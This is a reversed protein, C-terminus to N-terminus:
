VEKYPYKSEAEKIFGIVIEMNEIGFWELRYQIPPKNLRLWNLIKKEIFHCDNFLSSVLICETSPVPQDSNYGFFREKLNATRGIKFVDPSYKNKMIYIYGRKEIYKKVKFEDLCNDSFVDNSNFKIVTNEM